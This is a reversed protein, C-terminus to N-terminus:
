TTIMLLSDIIKRVFRFPATFRWSYTSTIKHLSMELNNKEIELLEVNAKMKLIGNNLLLLENKLSSIEDSLFSIENNKILLEANKLALDNRFNDDEPLKIPYNISLSEVLQDYLNLDDTFSFYFDELSCKRLSIKRKLFTCLWDSNHFLFSPIFYRTVLWHLYKDKNASPSKLIQEIEEFSKGDALSELFDSGVSIFPIDWFLSQLAMSSSVSVVADCYSIVLQGPSDYKKFNCSYLFNSFNSEFFQIQDDSFFPHQPHETFVVGVDVPIKRLCDYVFDFQTQYRCQGDFMYFGSFQVPVYVLRRFKKKWSEFLDDFPRSKKIKIKIENKLKNLRVSQDITLDELVCSKFVLDPVKGAGGGQMGVIDLYWSEPFPSRSFLGYEMCLILADPYIKKFFPTNSFTVILDYHEDLKDKYLHVYYELEEASYTGNYWKISAELYNNFCGLLEDQHVVHYTIWPKEEAKQFVGESVIVSYSHRETGNHLTDIFKNCFHNLWGDKWYPRGLEILPEIYFLIKM